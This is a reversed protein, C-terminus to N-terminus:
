HPDLSRVPRDKAPHPQAALGNRRPRGYAGQCAQRGQLRADHGWPPLRYILFVAELLKVYNEATSRELGIAGAIPTINLVQGSRAALQGLLRPLMERQRVRSIDMVDELRREVLGALIEPM